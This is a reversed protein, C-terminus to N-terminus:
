APQGDRNRATQGVTAQASGMTGRIEHYSLGATLAAQILDQMTVIDIEGGNVLKILNCAERFLTNNRTGPEAELMRACANAVAALGYRSGREFPFFRPKAEVAEFDATVSGKRLIEACWGPLLRAAFTKGMIWRYQDGVANISPPLLVYGKGARKADVGPCLVSRFVENPDVTLYLHRGGGPTAVSRTAPFASWHISDQTMNRPDFDLVLTGDPISLGINAAPTTQWWQEVIRPDASADKFGRPTLPTKDGPAVPFVRWGGVAYTM